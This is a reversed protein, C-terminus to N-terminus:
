DTPRPCAWTTSAPGLTGAGGGFSQPWKVGRRAKTRGHWVVGNRGEAGAMKREGVRRWPGTQDRWRVTTLFKEHSRGTTRSDHADEFSKAASPM